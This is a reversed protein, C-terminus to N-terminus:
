LSMYFDHCYIKIVYIYSNGHYEMTKEWRKPQAKRPDDGPRAGRRRGPRLWRSRGGGGPSRRSGAVGPAAAAPAAVFAPRVVPITKITPFLQFLITPFPHNPHFFSSSNHLKKKTTSNKLLLQNSNEVMASLLFQCDQPFVNLDGQLFQTKLLLNQAVCTFMSMPFTM